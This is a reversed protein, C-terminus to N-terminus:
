DFKAPSSFPRNADVVFLAFEQLDASGSSSVEMPTDGGHGVTTQGAAVHVVGHPTKQTLEGSIVYFAESGPHTHVSTVSGPPGGAENVRLLYQTASIRPIPGIEAVQKGGKSAEGAPGLTFLWVKGKAEAVLGMPGAAEQAQEKTDFNDIRWFLDGSPLETLKKEVLPKVAFTQQATAPSSLVFLTPLLATILKHKMM